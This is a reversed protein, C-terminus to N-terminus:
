ATVSREPWSTGLSQPRTVWMLWVCVTAGLLLVVSRGWGGVIAFAWAAGLLLFAGLGAGLMPARSKLLLAVTVELLGMVWIMGGDVPLRGFVDRWLEPVGLMSVGAAAFLVFLGNTLLRIILVTRPSILRYPQEERM